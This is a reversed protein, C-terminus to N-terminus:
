YPYYMSSMSYTYIYIYMTSYSGLIFLTPSKDMGHEPRM